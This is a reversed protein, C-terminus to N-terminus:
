NQESHSATKIGATTIVSVSNHGAAMQERQGGWGRGEPGKGERLGTVALIINEYFLVM